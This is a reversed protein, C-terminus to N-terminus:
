RERGGGSREESGITVVCGAPFKNRVNTLLENNLANSRALRSIFALIQKASLIVILRASDRSGPYLGIRCPSEDTRCM